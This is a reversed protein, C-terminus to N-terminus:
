SYIRRAEDLEGRQVHVEVGSELLSLMVGGSDVQEQTFEDATALVEDWRGLMLLPYTREALAAWEYPRSGVKRALALSQDLYDLAEAYRDERFCGDSLIFYLTSAQESLDHELSLELAHKTLAFAEEGHGRSFAVAGKARLAFVLAEPLRQAEAIDLAQEAREAATELNGSF